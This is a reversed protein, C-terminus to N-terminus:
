AIKKKADQKIEKLSEIIYDLKTDISSQKVEIANIRSANEKSRCLLENDAGMLMSTILGLSVFSASVSIIITKFTGNKPQTM